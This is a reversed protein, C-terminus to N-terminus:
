RLRRRWLRTSDDDLRESSALRTVASDKLYYVNNPKIGMLVVLSSNFIKLVDEGLTGKLGELELAGVSILNKMQPLYRLNSLERVMGNFIKICVTGKGVLRCTHDDRMSMLGGDLEKFSAFLERIPCIHYTCGTDLIWESMDSNFIIPTISLSFDSSGSENGDTKVVIAESQSEQM